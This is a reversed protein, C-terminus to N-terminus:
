VAFRWRNGTSVSNLCGGQWGLRAGTSYAVRQGLGVKRYIARVANLLLSTADRNTTAPPTIPTMKAARAPPIPAPIRAAIATAHATASTARTSRSELSASDSLRM